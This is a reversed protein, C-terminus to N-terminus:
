FRDNSIINLLFRNNKRGSANVKIDEYNAENFFSPIELFHEIQQLLEVSHNHLYAFDYVLLRGKFEKKYLEIQNPLYNDSMNIHRVKEEITGSM